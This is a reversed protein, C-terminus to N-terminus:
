VISEEWHEILEAPPSELPNDIIKIEDKNLIKCKYSVTPATIIAYM